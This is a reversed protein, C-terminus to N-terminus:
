RRQGVSPPASSGPVLAKGAPALRARGREPSSVGREPVFRDGRRARERAGDGPHPARGSNSWASGPIESLDAMDDAPVIRDRRAPPIVLTRAGVRSFLGRGDFSTSAQRQAEYAHSPQGDIKRLWPIGPVFDVVFWRWSYPRTVPPRVGTVRLVLRDVLEPRDAALRLAIKGGMSYGVVDAGAIGLTDLLGAVDGAMQEIAYGGPPKDSRGGGAPRARHGQMQAALQPVVTAFLRTNAGLGPILVVPPGDGHVEYYLTIDGVQAYPM